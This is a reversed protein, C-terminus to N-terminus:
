ADDGEGEERPVVEVVLRVRDFVEPMRGDAGVHLVAEVRAIPVMREGVKRTTEVIGETLGPMGVRAAVIRVDGSWANDDRWPLAIPEVETVFLLNDEVKVREERRV